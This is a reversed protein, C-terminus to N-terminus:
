TDRRDRPETERRNRPETDRRSRSETDRRGRSETERRRGYSEAERRRAADHVQDGVKTALYSFGIPRGRMSYEFIMIVREIPDMGHAVEDAKLGLSVVGADAQLVYAPDVTEFWTVWAYLETALNEPTSVEALRRESYYDIFAIEGDVTVFWNVPRTSFLLWGQKSEIVEKGSFRKTGRLFQLLERRASANSSQFDVYEAIAEPLLNVIRDVERLKVREAQEADERARQAAEELDAQIGRKDFIAMM